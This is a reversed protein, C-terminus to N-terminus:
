SGKDSQGYAAQARLRNDAQLVHPSSAAKLGRELKNLVAIVEELRPLLELRLPGETKVLEACLKEVQADLGSLDIYGGSRVVQESAELARQLAELEQAPQLATM